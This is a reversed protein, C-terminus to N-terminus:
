NIIKILEVEFLLTANPPIKDGAGKAGYGMAPPIVLTRKGGEMMGPIGEDWGKIVRGAGVVFGFPTARGESSDFKEGKQGPAKPDYLWGTYAVLVAKGKEVAKGKGEKTDKKVLEKVVAPAAADPAMGTQACATVSALTIAVASVAAIKNM